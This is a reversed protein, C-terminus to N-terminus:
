PRPELRVRLDVAPPPAERRAQVRGEALARADIVWGLQTFWAGTAPIPAPDPRLTQRPEEATKGPVAQAPAGAWPRGRLWDPLAQLPLAEGLLDLSLSELTDYRREGQDPTALRVSGPQWDARALSSGIPTVLLLGGRDATGSLEFGASFSRSDGSGGSAPGIRMALRGVLPDGIGEAAPDGAAAAAGPPPLSACGALAIALFAALAIRGARSRVPM